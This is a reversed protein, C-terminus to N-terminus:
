SANRVRSSSSREIEALAKQQRYHRVEMILASILVIGAVVAAAPAAIHRYAIGMDAHAGRARAGLVLGVIGLFLTVAFALLGVLFTVLLVRVPIWYWHPRSPVAEPM